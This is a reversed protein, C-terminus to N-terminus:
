PICLQGSYRFTFYAKGAEPGPPLPFFNYGRGRVDLEGAAREYKGLGGRITTTGVRDVDLTNPIPTFVDVDTAYIQDTQNLVLTRTATAGLTGPTPGPYVSNLIATGISQISGDTTFVVRGFPDYPSVRPDAVIETLNGQVTTCLWSSYDQATGSRASALAVAVVLSVQIRRTMSM